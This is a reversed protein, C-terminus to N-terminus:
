TKNGTSPGNADARQDQYDKPDKAREEWDHPRETFGRSQWYADNNPNMQNAQNDRDSRKSM